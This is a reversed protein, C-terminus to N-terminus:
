LNGKELSSKKFFVLKRRKNGLTYWEEKQVFPLELPEPVWHKSAWYVLTSEKYFSSPKFMRVLERPQLSARACVLEIDLSTKRLFTRWDLDYIEINELQLMDAITELFMIKKHNVEILVLAIHPYKIKLPLAPFGAGTGVDCLSSLTTCDKFQDLMLSDDFHDQLVRALDTIATLNHLDNTQLLSAYYRQFSELQMDNLAHRKKFATWLTEAGSIGKKVFSDYVKKFM